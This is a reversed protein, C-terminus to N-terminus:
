RRLAAPVGGPGANWCHEPVQRLGDLLARGLIAHSAANPHTDFHSLRLQMPDLGAFHDSAHSATFGRERAADLVKETADMFAYLRNLRAM